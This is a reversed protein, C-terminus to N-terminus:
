NNEFPNRKGTILNQPNETMVSNDVLSRFLEDDLIDTEETIFNRKILSEVNILGGKAAQEKLKEVAKEPKIFFNFVVYATAGILLLIIIIQLARKM